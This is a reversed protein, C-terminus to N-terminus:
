SHTGRCLTAPDYFSRVGIITGVSAISVASSPWNDKPGQPRTHRTVYWKGSMYNRYGVTRAEAIIRYM